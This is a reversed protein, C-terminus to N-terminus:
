FYENQKMIMGRERFFHFLQVVSFSIKSLNWNHSFIHIISKHMMHKNSDLSQNLVVWTKKWWIFSDTAM